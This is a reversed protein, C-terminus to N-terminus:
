RRMEPLVASLLLRLRLESREAFDAQVCCQATLHHTLLGTAQLVPQVPCAFGLCSRVTLGLSVKRMLGTCLLLPLLAM